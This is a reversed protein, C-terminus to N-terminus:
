PHREMWPEHHSTAQGALSELIGRKRLIAVADRILAHLHPGENRLYAGRACDWWARRVMGHQTANRFV